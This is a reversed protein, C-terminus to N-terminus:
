GVDLNQILKRSKGLCKGRFANTEFFWLNQRNKGSMEEPALSIIKLQGDFFNKEKVKM